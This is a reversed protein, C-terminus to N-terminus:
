ILFLKITIDKDIFDSLSCGNSILFRKNHLFAEIPVHGPEEWLSPVIIIADEEINGM